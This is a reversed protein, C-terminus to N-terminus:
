YSISSYIVGHLLAKLKCCLSVQQAGVIHGDRQCHLSSFVLGTGMSIVSIPSVKIYEAARTDLFIM